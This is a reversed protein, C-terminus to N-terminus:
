ATKTKFLKKQWERISRTIFVSGIVSPLLWWIWMPEIHVNNVLFATTTAIYAGGMMGIHQILWEKRRPKFNDYKAHKRIDRISNVLMISGFVGLVPVFFSKSLIMSAVPYGIMFLSTLFAIYYPLKYKLTPIFAEKLRWYKIAQNGSFTLYSSFLAISLLFPNFKMITMILATIGISYMAAVYAKGSNLHLKGGKKSFIATAGSVLAVIGVAVHLILLIKYM